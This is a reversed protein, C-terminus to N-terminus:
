LLWNIYSNTIYQIEYCQVIGESTLSKPNDKFLDEEFEALNDENQKSANGSRKSFLDEQNDDHEQNAKEAEVKKKQSLYEKRQKAYKRDGLIDIGLFTLVPISTCLEKNKAIVTLLCDFSVRRDELDEESMFIFYKRPMPLKLEPYQQVVEKQLKEFADYDRLVKLM